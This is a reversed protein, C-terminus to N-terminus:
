RHTTAATSIPAHGRVVNNPKNVAAPSFTFDIKLVGNLLASCAYVFFSRQDSPDPLSRNAM